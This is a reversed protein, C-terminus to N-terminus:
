SGQWEKGQEGRHISSGFTALVLICSWQLESNQTSNKEIVSDLQFHKKCTPATEHNNESRM